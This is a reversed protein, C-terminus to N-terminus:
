PLVFGAGFQLRNWGLDERRQLVCGERAAKSAAVWAVHQTTEM